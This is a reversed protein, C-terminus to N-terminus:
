HGVIINISRFIGIPLSTDVTPINPTNSAESPHFAVLKKVACGQESTRRKEGLVAESYSGSGGDDTCGLLGICVICM